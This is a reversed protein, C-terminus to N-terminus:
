YRIRPCACVGMYAYGSGADYTDHHTRDRSPGRHATQFPAGPVHLAAMAMIGEADDSRVATGAGIRVSESAYAAVKRRM